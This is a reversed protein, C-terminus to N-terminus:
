HWRLVRVAFYKFLVVICWMALAFLIKHFHTYNPFILYSSLYDVQQNLIIESCVVNSIEVQSMFWLHTTCLIPSYFTCFMFFIQSLNGYYWEHNTYQFTLLRRITIEYKEQEYFETKWDSCVGFIILYIISKIRTCCM